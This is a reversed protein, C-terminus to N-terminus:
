IATQNLPAQRRRFLYLAVLGTGLLLVSGPEPVSRVAIFEQPLSGNCGSLCATPTLIVVNLYQSANFSAATVAAQAADLWAQATDRNASGIVGLSDLANVDKTPAFVQWLAYQIDGICNM